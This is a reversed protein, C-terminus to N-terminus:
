GSRGDRRAGQAMGQLVVRAARREKPGPFLPADPGAAVHHELHTELLPVIAEPMTIDRVGAASKPRRVQIGSSLEQRQKSVIVRRHLFDLDARTLGLLEGLRLGCTSALLLLAGYLPDIAQVLALAGSVGIRV